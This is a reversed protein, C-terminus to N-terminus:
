LLETVLIDVWYELLSSSKIFMKYKNTKRKEKKIKEM